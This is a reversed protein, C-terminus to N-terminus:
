ATIEKHPRSTTVARGSAVSWISPTARCLDEPAITPRRTINRMRTAHKGIERAELTVELSRVWGEVRIISGVYERSLGVAAAITRQTVQPDTLYRDRWSELAARKALDKGRSM